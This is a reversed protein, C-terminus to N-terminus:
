RARLSAVYAVLSKAAYAAVESHLYALQQLLFRLDHATRRDLFYIPRIAIAFKLTGPAIPARDPPRPSSGSWHSPPRHSRWPRPARSLSSGPAGALRYRRAYPAAM